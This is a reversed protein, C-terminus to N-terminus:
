LDLHAFGIEMKTATSNDLNKFEFPIDNKTGERSDDQTKNNKLTEEWISDITAKRKQEEISYDWDMNFADIFQGLSSFSKCPSSEYWNKVFLNDGLHLSLLFLRM